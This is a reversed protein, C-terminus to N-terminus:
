YIKDFEKLYYQTRQKKPLMEAEKYIPALAVIMQNKFRINTEKKKEFYNKLNKWYKSVLENYENIYKENNAFAWDVFKAQFQPFGKTEHGTFPDIIKPTYCIMWPASFLLPNNTREEFLHSIQYDQYEVVYDQYEEALANELLRKPAANNSKDISFSRGFVETLLVMLQESGSGNRGHSRVFIDDTSTSTTVKKVLKEWEREIITEDIRKIYTLGADFLSEPSINLDTLVEEYSNVVKKVIKKKAM